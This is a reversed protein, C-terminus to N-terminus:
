VSGDMVRNKSFAYSSNWPYKRFLPDLAFFRGVRPNNMRYKYNISNGFGKIEDDKEQGQFGYRYAPSQYNRQPVFMGFPYYDNYSLVQPVFTLNDATLQM